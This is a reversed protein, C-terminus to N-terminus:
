PKGTKRQMEKISEMELLRKYYKHFGPQPKNDGKSIRRPEDVQTIRWLEDLIDRYDEDTKSKRFLEKVQEETWDFTDQSPYLERTSPNWDVLEESGSFLKIREASFGDAGVMNMKEVIKRTIIEKQM